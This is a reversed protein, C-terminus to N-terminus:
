LSGQWIDKILKHEKVEKLVNEVNNNEIATILRVLLQKIVVKEIILRAAQQRHQEKAARVRQQTKLLRKYTSMFQEKTNIGM